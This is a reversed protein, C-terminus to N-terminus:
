TAHEPPNIPLTVRFTSGAGPASQVTISGGHRQVIGQVLARVAEAEHVDCALCEATRGQYSPAADPLNRGCVVVTAGAALFGEAIGRGIGKTGGTVLVVQNEFDSIPNM